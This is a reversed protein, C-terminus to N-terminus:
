ATAPQAVPPVVANETRAEDKLVLDDAYLDRGIVVRATRRRLDALDPGRRREARHRPTHRAPSPGM